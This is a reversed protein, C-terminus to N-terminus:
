NEKQAKIKEYRQKQYAKLKIKNLQYYAKRREIKQAETTTKM